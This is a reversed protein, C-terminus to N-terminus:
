LVELKVRVREQLHVYRAYSHVAKKACYRPSVGFSYKSGTQADKTEVPFPVQVLEPKWV